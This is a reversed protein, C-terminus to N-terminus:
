TRRRRVELAVTAVVLLGAAFPLGWPEFGTRALIGGAGGARGGRAPAGGASGTSATGASGSPPPTVPGSGSARVDVPVDVNGADDVAQVTADGTGAPVPITQRNGAAASAKVTTTHGDVTLRYSDPQGCYWDDGPATVTIRHSPRDLKVERLVGPPRTDTGYRGTRWDDHHFTWSQDNGACTGPTSWAMLYGERTGVVVDNRGTSGLDGISPAFVVWGTTFKPFKAAQGGAATFAHLTSTDGGDVVEARGDGTVDGIAPQGLFDLGQFTQPYGPLPAGTSAAYGREFNHIATGSGVLILALATSVAGPGSEFYSLQGGVKGFAGSSTFSVPVDAPLVGNGALIATIQAPDTLAGLLSTLPNGQPGYLARIHGDAGVLATASFVPGTAVEDTGDGDVDAAAPQNSAETIFEQASGYYNILAPIDAPWGPEPSGDAGYAFTLNSGLPQIGAGLVESYQSREVISPRGGPHLYAIVPTADLKHDNVLKRGLAPQFGPPPEVPRPWGAAATGDPHWVYLNGDWAAQIIELHHDGDLDFLVPSATAGQHPLRTFDMAPRPITPTVANRDLAKPWGGRRHGHADWVYTRGTTSTAVIWQHGDHDLDGVAVPQIIPEHGPDIGGTPVDPITADTTIPFGPLETGTKGDIAHVKGDADGFVAALHGTGRLDVLAPQSEVSAGLRKPFGPRATPDHQVAITRREEGTRGSTDSVRLRISVTYQENTELQKTSSLRHQASWFSAPIKSLDLNGLPGDRPASGSGSAATMWDGDGPQAGAAYQLRWTYGSSRRAEVHGSVPVTSTTTPDYLSYWDLNDIWAVPPVDGAEIAQMAKLVNPRGYGYQLNWDGPSGPWNLSPDDIRSATARAVQIVEPGTLPRDLKHQDALELSYSQILAMVAGTTPTSQSTSGGSTAVSFMAHTGWSTQDSRERFSTTASNLAPLNKLLVLTNPVLGNGPLVHPWFMGGQHDTSDFDNSSETMIVGDRWLKDVAQRMYSSYGLDATVSVVVKANMRDAYLWAQALDDTRDLAEAGAKIPMVRCKPCIGAGDIGNNTEAAAQRMQNNAHDYTADVTAPDNQHDYFDWGSIDHAFGNHDNDAGRCGSPDQHWGGGGTCWSSFAVILDEPDRYGNGNADSVRPDGAYDAANVLGNGDLDYGDQPAAPDTKGDKAQPPPLEGTNVYVQNALDRASADHWNIGGEVYAILEEPDGTTYQAWAAEVSMGSAGEPDKANPTCKPIFGYLEHQEDNASTTLCTTPGDQEAPDYNPDDPPDTPFDGAAAGRSPHQSAAARLTAVSRGAASPTAAGAWLPAAVVAAIVLALFGRRGM